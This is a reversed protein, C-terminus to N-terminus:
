VRQREEVLTRLKALARMQAMRVSGPSCGLAIAVEQSSLGGVVRLELLDQEAPGLCRFADRVIARDAALLVAEAPDADEAPDAPVDKRGRSRKRHVDVVVHRLIGFLWPTFGADEGQFRDLQVVARAMTESVADRAEEVNGLRHHAFAVLRQYAARYLAAWADGDGGRAREVLGEPGSTGQDECKNKTL